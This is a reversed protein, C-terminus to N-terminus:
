PDTPGVVLIRLGGLASSEGCSPFGRHMPDILVELWASGRGGRPGAAAEVSGGSVTWVMRLSGWAHSDRPVQFFFEFLVIIRRPALSNLLHM